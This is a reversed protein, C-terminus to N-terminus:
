CSCVRSALSAYRYFIAILILRYFGEVTNLIARYGLLLACNLALSGYEFQFECVRTVAITIFKITLPQVHIKELPRM